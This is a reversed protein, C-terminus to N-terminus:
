LFPAIDLNDISHILVAIDQFGDGNYDGADLLESSGLFETAFIKDQVYNNAVKLRMRFFMEMETLWGFKMKVTTIQILLLPMLLM